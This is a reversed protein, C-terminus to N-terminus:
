GMRRMRAVWRAYGLVARVREMGRPEPGAGFATHRRWSWYAGRVRFGSALVLGLIRALGVVTDIADRM